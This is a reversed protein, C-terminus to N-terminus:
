WEWGRGRRYEKCGPRPLARPPPPSWLVVAPALVPVRQLTAFRLALSLSPPTPPPPPHRPAPYWLPPQLLLLSLSAFHRLAPSQAIPETGPLSEIDIYVHIYSIFSVCICYWITLLRTSPKHRRNFGTLGSVHFSSCSLVHQSRRNILRFQFRRETHTVAGFCNTTMLAAKWSARLCLRRSVKWVVTVVTIVLWVSFCFGMQTDSMAFANCSKQAIYSGRGRVGTWVGYVMYDSAVSNCYRQVVIACYVVGEGSWGNM